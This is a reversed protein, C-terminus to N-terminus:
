ACRDGLWPQQGDLSYLTVAVTDQEAKSATNPPVGVLYGLGAAQAAMNWTPQSFQFAGMYMGNPSVAQYNGGSEAQVVCQLFPNLAPDQLSSGQPQSSAAVPTASAVAARRAAAVAAAARAADIAAQASVAAALQGTVQGQLAQLQSRTKTAAGLAAAQETLNQQDQSQRARLTAQDALLSRQAVHLRDLESQINGAALTSYEDVVVARAPSGAFLREVAGSLQSDSTMYSRIALTRVTGLDSDVKNSDLAMQDALRGLAAVDANVRGSIAFYQQQYADIELRDAVLKQSIQAAQAKLDAIQDARAASPVLLTGVLSGSVVLTL